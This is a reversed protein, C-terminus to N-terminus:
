NLLRLCSRIQCLFAWKFSRTREQQARVTAPIEIRKVMFRASERGTQDRPEWTTFIFYVIDISICRYVAVVNPSRLCEVQTLKINDCAVVVFRHVISLLPLKIRRMRKTAIILFCNEKWDRNSEERTDFRRNNQEPYGESVLISPVFFTFPFAAKIAIDRFYLRTNFGVAPLVSTFLLFFKLCTFALLRM